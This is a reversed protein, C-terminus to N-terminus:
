EWGAPFSIKHIKNVMNTNEIVNIEEPITIKWCVKIDTTKINQQPMKSTLIKRHWILM